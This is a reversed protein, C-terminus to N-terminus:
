SEVMQELADEVGFRVHVMVFPTLKPKVEQEAVWKLYEDIMAWTHGGDIVGYRANPDDPCELTLIQKQNDYEARKAAVWIGRNRLHFSEPEQQLTRLIQRSLPKERDQKRPNATGLILKTAETVPLQCEYSYRGDDHPDDLRKIDKPSVRLELFQPYRPFREPTSM